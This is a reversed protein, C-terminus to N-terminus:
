KKPAPTGQRVEGGSTSRFRNEQNGPNQGTNGNFPRNDNRYHFNGGQNNRKYGNYNGMNQRVFNQRNGLNQRNEGSKMSKLQKVENSVTDIKSNLSELKEFMKSQDNRKVEVTKVNFNRGRENGNRTKDAVHVADLRVAIKEAEALTKPCVERLRIRVEKFPIADIFYDMALTEIVNSSASPYAKRTLKKISQALEPLSEDRRKTRTQLEGRFVEARNVSGFRITLVNVIKDYDKRDESSLENLLGRADGTLTSALYLSKTRYNWGNLDAILEFQALYDELDESGSFNQPKMKVPGNSKVESPVSNFNINSNVNSTSSSSGGQKPTSSGQINSHSVSDPRAGIEHTNEHSETKHLGYNAMANDMKDNVVGILNKMQHHMIDFGQTLNENITMMQREFINFMREMGDVNRNQSQDDEHHDQLDDNEDEHTRPRFIETEATNDRESSTGPGFAVVGSNEEDM